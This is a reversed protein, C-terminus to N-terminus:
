GAAALLISRALPGGTVAGLDGDEVFVAVAIDGQAAIVWSHTRPPNDTGYEATGTKGIAEAGPLDGLMGLYGETVVARMMTRLDIAEKQTLAAGEAAKSKGDHGEILVPFVAAGKVVSSMMAAMMLPSVQVKGQGIMSAAHETGASDRPVNGAFAPLGLDNTMGVGLAGAADSLKEQPLNQFQSVFATNCSHAVATTLSVEGLADPAYGPANLFKKGDAIFEPTCSVKSSPDMGQRFLGLSTAIKFTSGPAYQGLFATNYGQSDPGNASALIAGTSPRMVVISSPTKVNALSEEAANQLGPVLTTKVDKGNTPAVTFLIKPPSTPDTPATGADDVAAADTETSDTAAPDTPAPDTPADSPAASPIASVMVGPNGALQADFAAQLGGAGVFEGAVVKGKSKKIDEATAERVTGLIASAFSRSPALPMTSETALIGKIANFKEQDLAKFAEERLTLADVFAIPGYAKVKATYAAADIGLLGALQNASAEAESDDLGEKNIGVSRVPRDKVIAEGDASLIGARIGYNTSVKFRDGAALKPEVMEPSWAITWGNGDRKMDAGTAYTWPKEVKPLKWSYNLSVRASEGQVEVASVSVTPWSPDISEALETLEKQVQPGPKDFSLDGVTHDSLAKALAEATSSGDDPASCAAGGLALSIALLLVTVRRIM